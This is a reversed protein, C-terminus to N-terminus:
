TGSAQPFAAFPDDHFPPCPADPSGVLHGHACTRRLVDAVAQWTAESCPRTVGALAKAQERGEESLFPVDDADCGQERLVAALRIAKKLRASAIRDATASNM